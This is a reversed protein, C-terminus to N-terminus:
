DNAACAPESIATLAPGACEYIESQYYFTKLARMLDRDEDTGSEMLSELERVMDSFSQHFVGEKHQPAHPDYTKALQLKGGYRQMAYQQLTRRFSQVEPSSSKDSLGGNTCSLEFNALRYRVHLIRADRADLPGSPKVGRGCIASILADTGKLGLRYIDQEIDCTSEPYFNRVGVPSFEKRARGSLEKMATDELVGGSIFLGTNINMCSLSERGKGEKYKQLDIWLAQRNDFDHLCMPTRVVADPCTLDYQPWLAWHMVPDGNARHLKAVEYGEYSCPDLGFKEKFCKALAITLVVDERSSHAQKGKLLGLRHSLNELSLSLINQNGGEANQRATRPFERSSIALKKAAHLMDRYVLRGGFYPNLGNRIFSTRLYPLDFKTSNFGILVVRAKEAATIGSIFSQIKRMAVAECDMAEKQHEIVNIRNALIASPSPLQLRSIRVVGNLESLVSLKEDVAIFSYNLIQGISNRDSTELDYFIAKM